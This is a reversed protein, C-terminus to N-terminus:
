KTTGVLSGDRELEDLAGVCRECLTPYDASEGVHTSYNWCRECKAGQAKEVHVKLGSLGTSAGSGNSGAAAIEVQSVIFLAPLFAAYKQLLAALDGSATLTVRAELNAAIMKAARAPELAKLVEERVAHLGDWNKARTEDLARELEAADPFFAMHVSDPEGAVHPLYKWAEEATFVLIPAILRM